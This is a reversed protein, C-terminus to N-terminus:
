AHQGAFYGIIALTAVAILMKPIRRAFLRKFSADEPLPLGRARLTREVVPRWMLAALMPVITVGMFGVCAIVVYLSVQELLGKSLLFDVLASFFLAEVALGFSAVRLARRYHRYLVEPPTTPSYEWIRFERLKSFV